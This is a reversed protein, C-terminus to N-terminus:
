EWTQIENLMRKAAAVCDPGYEEHWVWRMFERYIPSENRDFYDVDIKAGFANFDGNRYKEKFASYYTYWDEPNTQYAEKFEQVMQQNFPKSFFDMSEKNPLYDMGIQKYIKKLVPSTRKFWKEFKAPNAKFVGKVKEWSEHNDFFYWSAAAYLNRRQDQASSMMSVGQMVQTPKPHLKIDFSLESLPSQLEYFPSALQAERLAEQEAKYANLVSDAYPQMKDELERIKQNKIRLNENARSLQKEKRELDSVCQPDGCSALLGILVISILVLYGTIKGTFVKTFYNNNKKM